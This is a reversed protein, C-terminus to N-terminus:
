ERAIPLTDPNAEWPFRQTTLRKSLGHPGNVWTWYGNTFATWIDLKRWVMLGMTTHQVSDGNAAFAQNDLCAGVDTTDLDHLTRFGLNFECPVTPIVIKRLDPAQENRYRARLRSTARAAAEV